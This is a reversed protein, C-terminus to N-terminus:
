SEFVYEEYIKVSIIKLTQTNSQPFNICSQILKELLNLTANEILVIRFLWGRKWYVLFENHKTATCYEM